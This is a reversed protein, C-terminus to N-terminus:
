QYNTVIPSTIVPPSKVTVSMAIGSSSCNNANKVKLTGNKVGISIGVPINILISNASTSPLTNDVVNTLGSASWTISYKIPSNTTATYPLVANTGLICVVPNVGLTITPLPRVFVRVPVKESGLLCGTKFKAVWFLTDHTITGSPSFTNGTYLASQDSVAGTAFWRLEYGAPPADAAISASTGNCAYTTDDLPLTFSPKKGTREVEYVNLSTALGVLSGMTIEVRNFSAGPDFSITAPSGAQLLNLLDTGQLLASFTVSGVSSNGNYAIISISGLLGAALSSSPLSLTVTVADGTNSLSGYYVNEHLTAGVGVGVSFAAFTSMNNDIANYPNNVIGNLSLLGTVSTTTYIPPSCTPDYVSAYFLSVTTNAANGGFLGGAADSTVTIRVSTCAGTPTFVYEDTSRVTLTSVAVAAGVLSAGNYAQVSVQSLPTLNSNSTAQLKLIVPNASSPTTAGNFNLNVYATSSGGNGPAVGSGPKGSTASLTAYNTYINDNLNDTNSITYIGVAGASGGIGASGGAGASGGTNAPYPGVYQAYIISYQGYVDSCGFGCICVSWLLLQPLLRQIVNKPSM